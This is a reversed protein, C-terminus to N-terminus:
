QGMRLKYSKVTTIFIGFMMIFSANLLTSSIKLPVKEASGPETLKFMNPSFMPSDSNLKDMLHSEFPNSIIQKSTGGPTM